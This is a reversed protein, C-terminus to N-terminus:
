LRDVGRRTKNRTLKKPNKNETQDARGEDAPDKEGKEEAVFNIHKDRNAEGPTQLHRDQQLQKKEKQKKDKM